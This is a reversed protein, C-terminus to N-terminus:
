KYWSNQLVKHKTRLEEISSPLIIWLKLQKALDEADGLDLPSWLGACDVPYRGFLTELLGLLLNAQRILGLLM